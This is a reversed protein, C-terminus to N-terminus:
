VDDVMRWRTLMHHEHRGHESDAFQGPYRKHSNILICKPKVGRPYSPRRGFLPVEITARRELERLNQEHLWGNSGIISDRIAKKLQQFYWGAM